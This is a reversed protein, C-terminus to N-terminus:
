DIGGGDLAASKPPPEGPGNMFALFERRLQEDGTHNALRELLLGARKQMSPKVSRLTALDNAARRISEVNSGVEVRPSSTLAAEITRAASALRREQALLAIHDASPRVRYRYIGFTAATALNLWRTRSPHLLKALERGRDQQVQRELGNPSRTSVLLTDYRERSSPAAGGLRRTLEIRMGPELHAASPIIQRVSAAARLRSPRHIAAGQRGRIFNWGLQASRVEFNTLAAVGLLTSPVEEITRRTAERFTPKWPSRFDVLLFPAKPHDLSYLSLPIMEESRAARTVDSTRRGDTDFHWEEEYGDWERLAHDNWPDSINLFKSRFARRQQKWLDSRSIWVLAAVAPEGEIAIPQFYLGESEARQRLLEWNRGLAQRRAGLDRNLVRELSTDRVLGGFSREALLVRALIQSYEQSNLPGSQATTQLQLMVMMAEFLRVTRSSTQSSLYTRSSIRLSTGGPDLLMAQVIGRLATKWVGKGPAALDMLPPPMRGFDPEPTLWRMLRGQKENTLLWLYRLRDNAPDDDGLTDRLVSLIPMEDSGAGEASGPLTSFLTLLESGGNLTVREWHARPAEAASATTTLIVIGILALHRMRTDSKQERPKKFRHLRARRVTDISELLIL